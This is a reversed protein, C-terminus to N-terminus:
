RKAYQAQKPDTPQAVTLDDLTYSAQAPGYVTWELPQLHAPGDDVDGVLAFLDIPTDKAYGYRSSKDLVLRPPADLVAIGLEQDPRATAGYEDEGELIVHLGEVPTIGDSRLVPVDFDAHELISTYFPERDCSDQNSADTCAYARWAFTVYHGEPDSADAT